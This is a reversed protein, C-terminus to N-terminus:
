CRIPKVWSRCRSWRTATACSSGACAMPAAAWRGRTKRRSGSPWATERASSSTTRATRSRGRRDGTTTTLRIAIIGATRPNHVGVPRDEQDHRQAHGHRHVQRGRPVGERSCRPWRRARPWSSSTRSPSARAAAASKPCRMSAAALLVPRPGLFEPHLRAHRSSSTDSSTRKARRCASAARAGADSSGTRSSIATRKIYGTHTVTIVVEEDAILDEVSFDGTEEIFETRRADGYKSRIARLEELVIAMLLEDSSLIARLREIVKVLEALEDIIKQRELGTLRQLQMDLIAQAQLTSLGFTTSLGSRPGRRPEELRPDAQHGRRPSRARDQPRRPHAGTGGGQAARVRDPAARGRPPVRHFARRDGAFEARAAPRGVIALLSSALSTQLKTHKYLNNLVVDPLEGRRLEIVIRMGERSSEDRMDSIGEIKKDNVLAAIEEVLSKKNVQYPIETIVISM